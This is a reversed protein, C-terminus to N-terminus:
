FRKCIVCLYVLRLNHVKSVYLYTCLTYALAKYENSFHLVANFQYWFLLIYMRITYLGDGELNIVVIDDEARKDTRDGHIVETDERGTVTKEASERLLKAAVPLLVETEGSPMKDPKAGDDTESLSESEQSRSAEELVIYEM